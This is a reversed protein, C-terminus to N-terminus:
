ARKTCPFPSLTTRPHTKGLTCFTACASPPHVIHEIDSTKRNEREDLIPTPKNFMQPLSDFPSIRQFRYQQLNVANASLLFSGSLSEYSLFFIEIFPVNAPFFKHTYKSGLFVLSCHHPVVPRVRYYRGKGLSFLECEPMPIFRSFSCLRVKCRVSLSRKQQLLSVPACAVLIKWRLKGGKRGEGGLTDGERVKTLHAAAGSSWPCSFRPILCRAIERFFHSFYLSPPFHVFTMMVAPSGLPSHFNTPSPM